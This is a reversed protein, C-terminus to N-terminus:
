SIETFTIPIFFKIHPGRLYGIPIGRGAFYVELIISDAGNIPASNYDQEHELYLTTVVPDLQNRAVMYHTSYNWTIDSCGFEFHCLVLRPMLLTSRCRIICQASINFKVRGEVVEVDFSTNDTILDVQYLYPYEKLPALISTANYYITGVFHSDVTPTQAATDKKYNAPYATTTAFMNIGLCLLTISVVLVAKKYNKKSM